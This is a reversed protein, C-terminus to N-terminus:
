AARSWTAASRTSHSRLHRFVVFTDAVRHKWSEVLALDRAPLGAPNDRVFAARLADDAWLRERIRFADQIPIATAPLAPVARTLQNTHRLLPWWIRCFRETDPAPLIM